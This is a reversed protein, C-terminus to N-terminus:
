VSEIASSRVAASGSGRGEEALRTAVREGLSAGLARGFARVPEEGASACLAVLAGTPVLVRGSEDLRVIGRGLDFKIAKSLDFRAAMIVHEHGPGGREVGPGRRFKAQRPRSALIFPRSGAWIM